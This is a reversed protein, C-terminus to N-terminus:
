AGLLQPKKCDKLAEQTVWGHVNLKRGLKIVDEYGVAHLFPQFVCERASYYPYRAIRRLWYELLNLDRLLLQGQEELRNVDQLFTFLRDFAYRYILGRRDKPNLLEPQLRPVMAIAMLIPDHDMIKADPELLPWYREPVILPGTGWDLATCALALEEDSHLQALLNAALDGAKWRATRVYQRYVYYVSVGAVAPVALKNLIDAVPVAFHKLFAAFSQADM